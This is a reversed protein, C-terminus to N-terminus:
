HSSSRSRVAFRRYGVCWCRGCKLFADTAWSATSATRGVSRTFAGPAMIAAQRNWTSAMKPNKLDRFIEDANASLRPGTSSGGGASGSPIARGHPPRVIM